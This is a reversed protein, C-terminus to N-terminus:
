MVNIGEHFIAHEIYHTNCQKIKINQGGGKQSPVCPPSVIDRLVRNIEAVLAPAPTTVGSALCQLVQLLRIQLWPAPSGPFGNRRSRSKHVEGRRVRALLTCCTNALPAAWHGEGVRRALDLALSTLALLFCPDAAPDQLFHILTSVWGDDAPPVVDGAGVHKAIARQFAICARKRIYASTQPSTWLRQLDGCLLQLVEPNFGAATNALCNLGVAAITECPSQIDTRLCNVLLQQVDRTMAIVSLLTYGSLKDAFCSFPSGALQAAEAHGLALDYGLMSCYTITWLCKRQDHRKLTAWSVLCKKVKALERQIIQEEAARSPCARMARIFDGIDVTAKRAFVPPVAALITPAPLLMM